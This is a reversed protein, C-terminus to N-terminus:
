RCSASAIDELEASTLLREVDVALFADDRWRHRLALFVHDNELDVGFNYDEASFVLSRGGDIAFQYGEILQQFPHGAVTSVLESRRTAFRASQRRTDFAELLVIRSHPNHFNNDYVMIADASVFDPDHQRSTLGYAYWVIRRTAPRVALLLNLSRFSLLLDGRQFVGSDSGLYEDVDNTHFPDPDAHEVEAHTRGVPEFGADGYQWREPRTGKLRAEFLPLDPNANIIESISIREIVRGSATDIHVLDTADLAWFAAQRHDGDNNLYHHFSYRSPLSWDSHGCSNINVLSNGALRVEAPDGAIHFYNLPRGDCQCDQGPRLPILRHLRADFGIALLAPSYGRESDVQTKILLGAYDALAAAAPDVYLEIVSESFATSLEAPTSVENFAFTTSMSGERLARWPALGLDNQVKQWATTDRELPHGAFFGLTNEVQQNIFGRLPPHLAGLAVGIIFVLALTLLRRALNALM